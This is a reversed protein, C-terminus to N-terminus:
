DLNKQFIRFLKHLKAGVREYEARMATNTELVLHTEMTKMGAKKASLILSWGVLIDLGRGRVEEDVAGLMLDLQKTTKAAYLIPIFGFPFLHGKSRQIGPTMNPLGLIFAVLNGQPDFALKLFRPDLVPLYRDAMEQMEKRDMPTFGYIDKYTKNILEFVPVIFPKIEKTKTYEGLKYPTNKLIREYIRQYTEPLGSELDILYDLCDTKKSYGHSEVYRPLYPLNCASVMVPMKDFGEV